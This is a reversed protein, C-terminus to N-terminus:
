SPILKVLEETEGSYSVGIVIDGRVIMGLDGHTAEAPHMFFSPTGTSALTASIKRAIIGSKGLGMTVVRGTTSNLLEVVAIFTEGLRDVLGLIAAGEVELVRRTEGISPHDRMDPAVSKGTNPM